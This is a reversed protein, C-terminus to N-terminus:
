RWHYSFVGSKCKLSALAFRPVFPAIGTLLPAACYILFTADDCYWWVCYIKQLFSSLTFSINTFYILVMFKPEWCRIYIWLHKKNLATFSVQLVPVFDNLLLCLTWNNLHFYHIDEEKKLYGLLGSGIRPRQKHKSNTLYKHINLNLIHKSVTCWKAMLVNACLLVNQTTEQFREAWTM